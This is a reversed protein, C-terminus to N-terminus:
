DWSFRECDQRYQMPLTPELPRCVRTIEDFVPGQGAENGWSWSFVCAENRWNIVMDRCRDVHAQVWSPRSALSKLGYGMGHSEVNAEAQVYLGYRSCLHYFYPDNPYHATRVTDINHRKMLEVDRRMEEHTVSRGNEASADHRNVGKFKVKKGNILIAGSSATEIKRFGIKCSRVDEGNTMVLTYLNPSEASWLRANRVVTRGGVTVDCVKAFSADYLSASVPGEGDVTLDLVADRYGNMVDVQAHFDRIARRPVAVLMVDRYIGSYRFFDQDELYSGDCWRMVQMAILNRGPKVYKTIDFEAAMKSDESYGVFKGNVWLKLNSTASGVHFVVQQGKWEAPLTFERRYSGTYNETEGIFPPNSDFTTAWAYGINKYIRDGHGNVEFLGPVPFNEWKSDDYGVRFFDRPADQHNKVFCFRWMGEMSLYLSSRAKQGLRALDETEYAFFNARRAERNQQNVQPNCWEPNNDAM